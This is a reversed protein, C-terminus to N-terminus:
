TRKRWEGGGEQEVKGEVQLKKLHHVVNNEAARHLHEPTDTYITKVIQMSTLSSALCALVQAEREQRHKIYYQIKPIPDEVVNGHAPYILSPSLSLIRDLSAMYHHLSEFVATGEGLICDGSLVANEERLHLVVHDTSHGPTHHVTVGAGEVELQLGEQLQTVPVGELCRPEALEQRPWKYVTVDQCLGLVEGVGGVHDPHWHTLLLHSVRCKEERLVGSLADRWEPIGGEGSDVLLRKPGTGVLYTNTGQLTMPSPNCGLVRIVRPSLRTVTPIVAVM